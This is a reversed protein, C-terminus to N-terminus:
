SVQNNTPNNGNRTTVTSMNSFFYELLACLWISVGCFIIATGGVINYFCFLIGLTIIYFPEAILQIINPKINYNHLFSLLGSDGRHDSYPKARNWSICGKILILVALLAFITGTIYFSISTSTSKKIDYDFHEETFALYSFFAFCITCIIIRLLSIGDKGFNHRFIVRTGEPIVLLLALLLYGLLILIAQIPPNSVFLKPINKIITSFSGYLLTDKQNM